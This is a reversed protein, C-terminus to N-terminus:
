NRQGVPPRNLAEPWNLVVHIVTPTVLNKQRVMVFRSGDPSVDYNAAESGYLTKRFRGEFLVEPTRPTIGPGGGLDVVMLRDGERYFLERGDRRWAPEIGGLNSIPIREGPEPFSQIYVEDRGSFDSVYAIWRGDPSVMGATEKAPSQLLPAPDKSKDMPLVWIDSKVNDERTAYVLWRGDPSWSSPFELAGSTLQQLPANLDPMWALALNEGIESAMALHNGNPSWVPQIDEGPHSSLRDFTSRKLDYLWIDFNAGTPSTVALRTGDPSFRPDLFRRGNGLLTETNGQRDVWVLEDENARFGGALYALTGGGGVAFQAAGNQEAMLGDLLKRESGTVEARQPDFRVAYLSGDRAFLLHGTPSYRPNTGGNILTRTEGRQAYLLAVRAEALRGQSYDTFLIHDGGPLAHPWAYPATRDTMFVWEEMPQENDSVVSGRQLGSNPSPAYIVTRDTSWTAGRNVGMGWASHVAIPMGGQVAVKKLSRDAFFGIWDGQPSFFPASASETGAIVRVEPSALDRLYLRRIGGAEGVIVLRSGDPSLALTPYQTDVAVHLGPPLAIQMQAPRFETSQPPWFWLWSGVVAISLLGAMAWPVLVKLKRASKSRYTAVRQTTTVRSNSLSDNEIAKLDAPLEDVHQYRTAPNKALAKAVIGDLAIPLGSRLATLPEPDENLISYIVAQEYDGKFPLQGSIMEYLVVGLSWIDARHDV